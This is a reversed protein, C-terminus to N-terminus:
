FIAHFPFKRGDITATANIDIFHTKSSPDSEDININEFIENKIFIERIKEFFDSDTYEIFNKEYNVTAFDAIAIQYINKMNRLILVLDYHTKANKDAEKKIGSFFQLFDKTGNIRNTTIHKEIQFWEKKALEEMTKNFALTINKEFEPRAILGQAKYHLVLEDDIQEFFGILDIVDHFEPLKFFDLINTNEKSQPLLNHIKESYEDKIGHSKPNNKENLNEPTINRKNDLSFFKQIQFTKRIITM